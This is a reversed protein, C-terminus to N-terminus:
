NMIEVANNQHYHQLFYPSCCVNLISDASSSSGGLVYNNYLKDTDEHLRNVDKVKPVAM